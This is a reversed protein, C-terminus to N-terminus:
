TNTRRVHEILTPKQDPVVSGDLMDVMRAFQHFQDSYRGIAGARNVILSLLFFSRDTGRVAPMNQRHDRGIFNQSGGSM